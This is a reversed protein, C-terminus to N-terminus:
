RGMMANILLNIDSIDVSGDGNVDCLSEISQDQSLGLMANIVLNIDSIDVAGDGNIDGFLSTTYDAVTFLAPNGWLYYADSRNPNRLWLRYTEGIVGGFSGDFAVQRTEGAPITVIQSYFRSKIRLTDTPLIAVEIVGMYNGGNNKVQAVARVHDAPMTENELQLESVLELDFASAQAVTVTITEGLRNNDKDYLALQYTGATSPATMRTGFTQEGGQAVDIGIDASAVAQSGNRVLAFHVNDYYELGDNHLTAKVEFMNGSYLTTSNVTLDVLSLNPSDPATFYAMGNRVEMLIYGSGQSSPNFLRYPLGNAQYVLRIHYRGDSLSTSPTVTTNFSYYYWPEISSADGDYTPSQVVVTEDESLVVHGWYLTEWNKNGLLAAQTVALTASEGLAVQSVEPSFGDYFAGFAYPDADEHAPQIGVVAAQYNNYGGEFSGIGQSDPNLMSIIFYGDSMGGWGWNIHFYGDSNYGDVVFAHGGGSTSGSYYIPRHADLEDRLIQEWGTIGFYQRYIIRTDQDYGFHNKLADPVNESYAGSSGDNYMMEVSYGVDRMLLAVANQHVTAIGPSIYDDLMNDWDYLSQSLNATLNQSSQGGVAYNYSVSGTGQAPWRHYYMIQAMATAVCGTVARYTAGSKVYTPCMNNYPASQNWNSTVLPTVSTSVKANQRVAVQPHSQLYELERQYEGLWWRLNDPLQDYNFSGSDVYGLIPMTRDDGSVIVFGDSTGRNFVYYQASPATYAHRLSTTAPAHRGNNGNFFQQASAMAQEITVPTAQTTFAASFLVLILIQFKRM